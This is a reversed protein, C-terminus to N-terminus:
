IVSISGEESDVFELDDQTAMEREDGETYESGAQSNRYLERFDIELDQSDYLDFPSVLESSFESGHPLLLSRSVTDMSESGRFMEMVLEQSEYHLTQGSQASSWDDYPPYYLPNNIAASSSFYRSSLNSLDALSNMVSEFRSDKSGTYQNQRYRRAQCFLLCCCTMGLCVIVSLVGILSWYLPEYNPLVTEPTKESVSQIDCTTVSRLLEINEDLLKVLDSQPVLGGSRVAFIHMETLM